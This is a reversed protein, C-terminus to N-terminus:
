SLAKRYRVVLAAYCGAVLLLTVALFVAAGVADPPGAGISSEAGLVGSVVGDVLTYPSILGTYAVFTDTGFEAALESVAAQFGSLVLLVGVVAAVGLGRRPTLAAVLLGIGALVLAYLAAGAMSRLYDPLQEGLPLEALLAGALLLTNPLGMLIFLAVAMGAYKAQVYQRRSLPRSFYLSAVRYRLDRSMVAPSQSGLFITVAVQLQIVYEPYTVPLESAGFYSTVIGMIVAPLVMVGLLLFPMVKSRASRGLGYTGRLTEVFLSRRIYSAGLRPGDYHRYGIDHIAGTRVGATEEPM